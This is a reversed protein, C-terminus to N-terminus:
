KEPGSGERRTVYAGDVAAVAGQSKLVHQSLSTGSVSSAPLLQSLPNHPHTSTPSNQIEAGLRGPQHGEPNRCLAMPGVRKAHSFQELLWLSSHSACIMNTKWM